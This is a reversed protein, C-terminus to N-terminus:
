LAQRGLGAPVSIVPHSRIPADSCFIADASLHLRPLRGNSLSAATTRALATSSIARERLPRPLFSTRSGKVAKARLV